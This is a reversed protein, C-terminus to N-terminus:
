RARRRAGRTVSSDRHIRSRECRACSNLEQVLRSFPNGSRKRSILSPTSDGGGMLVSTSVRQETRTAPTAAWACSTLGGSV